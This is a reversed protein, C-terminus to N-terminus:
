DRVPDFANLVWALRHEHRTVPPMRNEVQVQCNCYGLIDAVYAVEFTNPQASALSALLQGHFEQLQELDMLGLKVFPSDCEVFPIAENHPVLTFVVPM